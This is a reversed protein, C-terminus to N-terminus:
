YGRQYSDYAAELTQEAATLEEDVVAAAPAPLLTLRGFTRTYPIPRLVSVAPPELKASCWVDKAAVDNASCPKKLLRTHCEISAKYFKTFTAAQSVAQVGEHLLQSAFDSFKDNWRRFSCSEYHLIVAVPPPLTVTGKVEYEGAGALNLTKFHHPNSPALGAIALRGISKGHSLNGSGYSTFDAACHKFACGEAFANVCGLSPSLAELTLAHFECVDDERGTPNPVAFLLKQLAEVGSPLHLLEDDDIHLLHSLGMSRAQAIAAQVHNAQRTSQEGWDRRTGDAAVVTCLTDWPPAQLLQVLSPTDEVRLFFHQVGIVRHHYLLWTLFNIPRKTMCAVALRVAEGDEFSTSGEITPLVLRPRQADVWVRRVSDVREQLKRAYVM